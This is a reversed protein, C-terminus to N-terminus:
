KAPTPKWERAMKQAEARQKPSLNFAASDRSDKYKEIDQAAALSIWMYALVKDKPVGKGESYMDGLTNQAKAQGQDAAKRYWTAAQVADQPVGKGLDYLRGINGQAQPDGQDAAKRYWLAAQAYDQPVGTGLDFM